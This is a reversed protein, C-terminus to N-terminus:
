NAQRRLFAPIDLDDDAKAAAPQDINLQGQAPSAMAPSSKQAVAANGGMPMNMAANRMAPRAPAQDDAGNALRQVSGALRQFFSQTKNSGAQPQQQQAPMSPQAPTAQARPASAQQMTPMQPSPMTMSAAPGGDAMVPQPPIFADKYRTAKAAKTQPQSTSANLLDAQATM